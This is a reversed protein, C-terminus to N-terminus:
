TAAANLADIAPSWDINVAGPAPVIARTIAEAMAAAGATNPHLEDTGGGGRFEDRLTTDDNSVAAAFDFLDRVGLPLTRLYTAHERRVTNQAATKGAHPTITAAYVNPSIHAKVMPMTEEFRDRMIAASTATGLDNQGMFHIVADALPLDAWRTWKPDAPNTWLVMGSGPYAYHVPLAGITRAYQSLWSDHVLITTGTGATISDGYGAVTPTTAATEAEIWWDFPLWNALSYGAGSAYGASSRTGSVWGGGPALVKRYDGYATWGVSVMQHVNAPVPTSIWPTVADGGGSPITLPGAVQTPATDFAGDWGTGLWVGTVQGGAQYSVGSAYNHNRVHLRWRTLEAGYHIPFRIAGSTGTDEGTGTAATLVLPVRKFASAGGGGGSTVPPVAGADTRVWGSWSSGHFRRWTQPDNGYAVAVQMRASGAITASDLWWTGQEPTGTQTVATHVLDVGDLADDANFTGSTHTRYSTQAAIEARTTVALDRWWQPEGYATNYKDAAVPYKILGEYEPM